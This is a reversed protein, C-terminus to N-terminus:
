EECEYVFHSSKKRKKPHHSPQFPQSPNKEAVKEPKITLNFINTNTLHHETQAKAEVYKIEPDEKMYASEYQNILQNFKENNQLDRKRM